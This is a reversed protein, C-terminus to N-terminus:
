NADRMGVVGLSRVKVEPTIENHSLAVLSPMFRETLKKFPRRVGPSCLVIPTTNTAEFQKIATGLRTLIKQATTPDIALYSGQDSTQLSKALTDEIERDLVLLPINGDPSVYPRTIARALGERVRETLVEADKTVPAWDALVELIGHLNRISVGERLLTKVVRLVDGLSLLTPILEDVVKPHTKAITDLLAQFEQRGILEHGHKRIIETIHTAIITSHDVVTYGLLQARDRVDEEIWVAPLGFAPETTEIGAVKGKATGPDMALLNGRMLEGGTIKVGKLLVTYENAQLQLNDRIHIPPVIFGMETAFQRRIAQIRRLLEGNQETDVLPILGYGVELELFDIPLLAEISEDKAAAEKTRQEEEEDLVPGAQHRFTIFAITGTVAALFFFPIGPLGPMLAFFLLVASTIALARPHFTLQGALTNGLDEDSATRSVIIGAATSIILAPIQSVLGDGVTLLTYTKAADGLSMKQQLVGIALGGVINILTILVGAIADGRVFKSAGDMAGYFDAELEIERRKARAAGETLLGANLDADIAMQKGPMADLTFRAAVEAIRGAGKTIVVFNIIVLILFVVLGVVYNGGVVFNGFSMIISGAAEPGENGHLLILRTSAINLSLRYLTCFLLLSPFISFELPKLTYISVLMVVLALTISMSLLLDLAFRPLPIVMFIIIAVFFVAIVIDSHRTLPPMGKVSAGTANMNM